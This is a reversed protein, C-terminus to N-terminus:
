HDRGKNTHMEPVAMGFLLYNNYKDEHMKEIRKYPDNGSQLVSLNPVSSVALM